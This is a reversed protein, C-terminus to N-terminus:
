GDKGAGGEEVQRERGWWAKGRSEMPSNGDGFGEGVIGAIEVWTEKSKGCGESM